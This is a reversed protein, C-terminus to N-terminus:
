WDLEDCDAMGDIDERESALVKESFGPSACLHLTEQVALWDEEALLVANGEKAAIRIPYHCENVRRVLQFLNQRAKTINITEM